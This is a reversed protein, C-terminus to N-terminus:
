PNPNFDNGTTTNTAPTVPHNFAIMYEIDNYEAGTWNIDNPIFGSRFYIRNNPGLAIPAFMFENVNLEFVQFEDYEAPTGNPPVQPANNEGTAAAAISIKVTAANSPGLNRAYLYAKEFRADAAPLPMMQVSDNGSYTAGISIYQMKANGNISLEASKNIYLPSADYVTTTTLALDYKLKGNTKAM